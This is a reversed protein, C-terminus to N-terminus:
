LAAHGTGVHSAAALSSTVGPLIKSSALKQVMRDAAQLRM